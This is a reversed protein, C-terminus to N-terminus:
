EGKRTLKFIAECATSVGGGEHFKRKLAECNRKIEKDNIVKNINEIIFNNDTEGKFCCGVQHHEIIKGSSNNATVIVPVGESMAEKIGTLGGHSIFLSAHKLINAQNFRSGIVMNNIKKYSNDGLFGSSIVTNYDSNNRFLKIFVDIWDKYEPAPDSGQTIYIIPRDNNLFVEQYADQENQVGIFKYKAPLENSFPNIESCSHVINLHDSNTLNFLSGFKYSKMLVHFYRVIQERGFHEYSSKDIGFFYDLYFHPYKFFMEDTIVLGENCCVDFVGLTEAILKGWGGFYDYIIYDPNVEKVREFNKKAISHFFSIFNVIMMIFDAISKPSHRNNQLEERFGAEYECTEFGNKTFIDTYGDISFCIIEEGQKKLELLLEINPIIHGYHPVCLFAARSM